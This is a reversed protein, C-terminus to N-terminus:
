SKPSGDGSIKDQINSGNKEELNVNYTTLVSHIAEELDKLLADEFVDVGVKRSMLFLLMKVPNAHGYIVVKDKEIYNAVFTEEKNDIFIFVPSNKLVTYITSTKEIKQDKLEIFNRIEDSTM